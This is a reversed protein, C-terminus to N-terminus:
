ASKRANKAQEIIVLAESDNREHDIPRVRIARYTEGREDVFASIVERWILWQARRSRGVVALVRYPPLM